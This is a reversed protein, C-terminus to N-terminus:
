ELYINSTLAYAIISGLDNPDVNLYINDVGFPLTPYSKKSLCRIWKINLWKDQLPPDIVRKPGKIATDSKTPLVKQPTYPNNPSDGRPQKEQKPVKIFDFDEKLDGGQRNYM